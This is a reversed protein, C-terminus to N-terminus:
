DNDGASTAPLELALNTIFDTKLQDTIAKINAHTQQVAALDDILAVDLSSQYADIQAIASDIDNLMQEATVTAGQEILFDDFGVGDESSALHGQFIAKFSVLNARINALSQMSIPSEVDEPCAAGACSNEFLGLPTGLKGDKTVSDLYFMADSIRNVADHSSAIASNSSGANLLQNAYGSVGQWQQWLDANNNIVDNAVENAFACRANIKQNDTYADWGAPATTASCSHELATNFLLYELADLGRRTNTRNEITYPTGNIEGQDFYVVDQDVACTSTVPWSYIKNRLANSNTALPGMLMMEILQWQQMADRWGQQASQLAQDRTEQDIDGAQFSQETACYDGIATQLQSAHTAFAQYTPTLVNNTINAVLAAEDFSTGGTQDNRFDEGETSSSNENCGIVLIGVLAALVTKNLLSQKTNM